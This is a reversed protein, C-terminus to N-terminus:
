LNLEPTVGATVGEGRELPWASFFRCNLAQSAVGMLCSDGDMLVDSRKGCMRHIVRNVVTLFRWRIPM